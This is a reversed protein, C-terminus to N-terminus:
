LDVKAVIARDTVTYGITFSDVVYGADAHSTGPDSATLTGGNANVTLQSFATVNITDAAGSNITPPTLSGVTVQNPSKGTDLTISQVSQPIGILTVASGKLSSITRTITYPGVLYSAAHTNAQDYITLSSSPGGYIFLSGAISNLNQT